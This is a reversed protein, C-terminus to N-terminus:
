SKEPWVPCLMLTCACSWCPELTWFNPVRSDAAFGRGWTRRIKDRRSIISRGFKFVLRDISLARENAAGADGRLGDGREGEWEETFVVEAGVLLSFGGRDLGPREMEWESLREDEALLFLRCASGPVLSVLEAMALREMGGGDETGRFLGRLERERLRRSDLLENSAQLSETRCEASTSSFSVGRRM